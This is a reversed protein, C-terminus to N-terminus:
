PMRWVKFQATTVPVQDVHTPVHLFLSALGGCDAYKQICLKPPKEFGQQEKITHRQRYYICWTKIGPISVKRSEPLFHVCKPTYMSKQGKAIAFSQSSLSLAERNCFGALNEKNTVEKNDEELKQYEHWKINQYLPSPLAKLHVILFVRGLSPASAWSQYLVSM